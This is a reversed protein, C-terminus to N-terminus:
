PYIDQPFHEIRQTEPRAVVERLASSLRAAWAEAGADDRIQDNRLEVLVHPLGRKVGYEPITYDSLPEFPYPENEGVVIGPERELAEILARAMRDDAIWPIGIQWPREVGGYVPTFSHVAVVAPVKGVAIMDDLAQRIAAHYPWFFAARRAEVDAASLNQNAPVRVGDSVPPVVDSAEAPRNCDIVLRSYGALLAPADLLEAMRRTVAAAGIDWGIHDRLAEDSLGLSDLAAPVACSAHDCVLLVRSKGSPNVREFIPPDGPGILAAATM